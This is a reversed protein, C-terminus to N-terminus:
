YLGDLTQSIASRFEWQSEINRHNGKPAEIYTADIGRGKLSNVYNKALFPRTNDDNRGTVAFVRTSKAVTDVFDSPSLSSNWNKGSGSAKSARWLAVNCPCGGLVAANALKPYKGIIVGSIAAGGSRGVLVVFEAKYYDKLTQIAAAVTEIVVPVYSDNRRYSQGTSSNGDSDYYGPRILGVTVRGKSGYERAIKFMYDSAGGSSDDGHIFVVLSTREAPEGFIQIVLCEGNAAVGSINDALCSASLNPADRGTSTDNVTSCAVLSTAFLATVSAILFLKM